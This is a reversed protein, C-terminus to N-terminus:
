NRVLEHLYKLMEKDDTFSTLTPNNRAEEAIRELEERTNVGLRARLECMYPSNAEKELEEDFEEDVDVLPVSSVKKVKVKAPVSTKRDQRVSAAIAM